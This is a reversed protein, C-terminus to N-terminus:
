LFQTSMYIKTINKHNFHSGRGSFHLTVNSFLSPGLPPITPGCLIDVTKSDKQDSKQIPLFALLDHATLEDSPGVELPGHDNKFFNNKWKNIICFWGFQIKFYTKLEVREFTLIPYLALISGLYKFELEFERLTNGSTRYYTSNISVYSSSLKNMSKNVLCFLMLHRERLM